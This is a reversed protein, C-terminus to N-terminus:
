LASHQPLEVNAHSQRTMKPEVPKPIADKFEKLVNCLSELARWNDSYNM